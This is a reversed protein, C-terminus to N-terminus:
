KKSIKNLIKITFISIVYVIITWFLINLPLFLLSKESILKTWDFPFKYFLMLLSKINSEGGWGVLFVTGFISFLSYVLLFILAIKKARKHM